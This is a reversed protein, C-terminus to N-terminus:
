SLVYEDHTLVNNANSENPINKNVFKKKLLYFKMSSSVKSKSPPSTSNVVNCPMAEDIREKVSIDTQYKNKLIEYKNIDSQSKLCFSIYQHIKNLIEDDLWNLNVFIGNNNQTYISDNEHLIKFVEDNETACLKEINSQIFKCVDAKNM